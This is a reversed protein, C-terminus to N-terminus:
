TAWTWSARPWVTQTSRSSDPLRESNGVFKIPAGSVARISLAAGGRADGDMKTIVVGTVGLREHFTTTTAVADQGTMVDVVYLIELPDAVKKLQELEKMMEDDIALRGATDILLVDAGEIAAQKMAAKVVDM